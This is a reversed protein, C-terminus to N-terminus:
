GASRLVVWGRASSVNGFDWPRVVGIQWSAWYTAKGVIAGLWVSGLELMIKFFGHVGGIEVGPGAAKSTGYGVFAALTLLSGSRTGSLTRVVQITIWRRANNDAPAVSVESFGSLKGRICFMTLRFSLVICFWLTDEIRLPMHGSNTSKCSARSGVADRDCHPFCYYVRRLTPCSRPTKGYLPIRPAPRAIRGIERCHSPPRSPSPTVDPITTPSYQMFTPEKSPPSLLPYRIHTDKKRTKSSIYIHQSTKSTAGSKYPTSPELNLKPTKATCHVTL